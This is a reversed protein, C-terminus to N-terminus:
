ATRSAAPAPAAAPPADTDRRRIKRLFLTMTPVIYLVWATAELVSTAPSFNFVGKLLVAYWASPEIVSSVDFALTNLGPLVGAEQLDHVGYSLVGAAVVVLFAGTWTFFRSLNITVAGRYLLWGIGVATLIGLAPASCPCGAPAPPPM